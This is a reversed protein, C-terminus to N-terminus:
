EIGGGLVSWDMKGFDFEQNEREQVAKENKPDMEAAIEVFARGVWRNEAGDEKVLLKGRTLLLQALSVPTFSGAVPKPKAGQRALVSVAQAHKNRPSLKIALSLYRRAKAKVGDDAEGALGNAAQAALHSAYEDREEDMMGLERSFMGRKLVIGDKEKDQGWAVSLLLAVAVVGCLKLVGVLGCFVEEQCTVIGARESSLRWSRLRMRAIDTSAIRCLAGM